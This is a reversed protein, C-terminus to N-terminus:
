RQPSPTHPMAHTPEHLRMDTTVLEPEHMLVEEQDLWDVQIHHMLQFVAHVPILIWQDLRTTRQSAAQLGWLQSAAIARLYEPVRLAVVVKNAM